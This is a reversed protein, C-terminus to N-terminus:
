VLNRGTEHARLHTYSVATLDRKLGRMPRLRAKLRGHDAEVRNNAYPTTDHLAAPLLETIVRVLTHARDTTIETPQGHATIVSTFFRTAANLDRKKSALVDIVQGYQDVARASNCQARDRRSGNPSSGLDNISSATRTFCRRRMRGMWGGLEANAPNLNGGSTM